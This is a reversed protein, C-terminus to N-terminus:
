AQLAAHLCDTQCKLAEASRLQMRKYEVQCSCLALRTISM